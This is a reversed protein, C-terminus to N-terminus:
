NGKLTFVATTNDQYYLEIFYGDDKWNKSNGFEKLKGQVEEPNPKAIPHLDLFVKAGAESNFTRIAIGKPSKNILDGSLPEGPNLAVGIFQSVMNEKLTDPQYTVVCLEGNIGRELIMDRAQKFNRELQHDDYKGYFYTGIVRFSLPGSENVTIEKFGGLFYYLAFTVLGIVMVAIYIKKVM